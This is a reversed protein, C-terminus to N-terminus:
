KSVEATEEVGQRSKDLAAEVESPMPVDMPWYIAAVVAPDVGREKARLFSNTAQRLDVGDGQNNPTAEALVSAWLGLNESAVECKELVKKLEEQRWLVERERDKNEPIFEQENEM